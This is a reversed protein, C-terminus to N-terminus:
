QQPDASTILHVKRSDGDQRINFRNIRPATKLRPMVVPEPKAWRTEPTPDPMQRIEEEGLYPGNADVWGILRRLSESDMKAEIHEEDMAREILLSASSMHTMPKLTALAEPTRERYGEVILCGSISAPLGYANILKGDVPEYWNNGGGVLTIYPEKFQPPLSPYVPDRLSSDRFTLDLQERAEGDGQHCKGCYQDLVPQVFREYSISVEAGWPPPTLPQAGRRMALGGDTVIPSNRRGEHCGVCGRTEGPMVGTFSRMTQVCRYNDDLLQFHLSVGPPV